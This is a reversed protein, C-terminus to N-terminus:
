LIDFAEREAGRPVFDIVRSHFSLLKNQGWALRRRQISLKIQSECRVGVLACPIKHDDYTIDVRYIYKSQIGDQSGSSPACELKIFEASPFITFLNLFYYQNKELVLSLKTDLLQTVAAILTQGTEYSV